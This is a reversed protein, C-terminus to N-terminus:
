HLFSTKRENATHKRADDQWRLPGCNESTNDFHSINKYAIKTLKNYKVYPTPM